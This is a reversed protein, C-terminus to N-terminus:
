MKVNSISFMFNPRINIDVNYRDVSFFVNSLIVETIFSQLSKEIEFKSLRKVYM